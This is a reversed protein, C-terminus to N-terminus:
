GAIRRKVEGEMVDLMERVKSAGALLRAGREIGALFDKAKAAEGLATRGGLRSIEKEVLTRGLGGLYASAVEALDKELELLASELARRVQEDAERVLKEMQATHRQRTQEWLRDVNVVELLDDAAMLDQASQTSLVDIKAGPLATIKQSETASTEIGQSGDHFFGLPNGDKYFILGTRDTTYVRLCGNLRQAKLKGMLARADILKLEQALYLAEGHLLAHLGMALDPSLRYVDVSGGETVIARFTAGLAEFGSLKRDAQEHHASLLRGGEFVLITLSAPFTYKLYGTLKEQRMQALFVPAAFRAAVVNQYVPVGRPILM